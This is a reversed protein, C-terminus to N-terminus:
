FFKTNKSFDIYYLIKILVKQSVNQNIESSNPISSIIENNNQLSNNIEM